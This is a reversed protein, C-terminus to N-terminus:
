TCRSATYPWCKARGAANSSVEMDTNCAAKPIGSMCNILSIDTLFPRLRVNLHKYPIQLYPLSLAIHAGHRHWCSKM